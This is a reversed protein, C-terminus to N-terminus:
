LMIMTIMMMTMITPTGTEGTHTEGSIIAKNHMHNELSKQTYM